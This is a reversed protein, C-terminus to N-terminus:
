LGVARRGQLRLHRGDSRYHHRQLRVTWL